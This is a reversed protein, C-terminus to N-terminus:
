DGRGPAASVQSDGPLDDHGSRLAAWALPTDGVGGRRAEVRWGANLLRRVM